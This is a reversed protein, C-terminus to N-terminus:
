KCGWGFDWGDKNANLPESRVFVFGGGKRAFIRVDYSGQAIEINTLKKNPPVVFEYAKVGDRMLEFRLDGRDAPACKNTTNTISGIYKRTPGAAAPKAAASYSVKLETQQKDKVEIKQSWTSGDGAIVTVPLFADGDPLQFVTPITDEKVDAGIAVKVKFGNPELVKLSTKGAFKYSTTYSWDALATTVITLVALAISVFLSRFRTM